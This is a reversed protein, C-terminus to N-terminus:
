AFDELQIRETRHTWKGDASKRWSIVYIMGAGRELWMRAAPLSLIKTRRAAHNDGSTTQVAILGDYDPHLAVIDIFGFLDFRRKVFSNWHETIACVHGTKRLFALTRQTPSTKM